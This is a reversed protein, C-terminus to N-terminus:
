TGGEGGGTPILMEEIAQEFCKICPTRHWAYSKFGDKCSPCREENLKKRIENFDLM